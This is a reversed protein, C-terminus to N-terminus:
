PPAGRNDIELFCRDHTDLHFLGLQASIRHDCHHTNVISRAREPSLKAQPLSQETACPVAELSRSIISARRDRRDRRKTSSAKHCELYECAAQNPIVSLSHLSKPGSKRARLELRGPRQCCTTPCHACLADRSTRSHGHLAIQRLPTKSNCTTSSHCPHSVVDAAAQAHALPDPQLGALQM